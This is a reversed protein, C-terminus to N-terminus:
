GSIAAGKAAYVSSIEASLNAEVHIELAEEGNLDTIVKIGTETEM